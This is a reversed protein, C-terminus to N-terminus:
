RVSRADEWLTVRYRTGALHEGCGDCTARSFEIRECDCGAERDAATCSEDHEDALLGATISYPRQIKNLPDPGDHEACGEGNAHVLMCCQCIVVPGIITDFLPM